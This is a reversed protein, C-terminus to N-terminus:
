VTDSDPLYYDQNPEMSKEFTVLENPIGRDSKFLKPIPCHDSFGGCGM